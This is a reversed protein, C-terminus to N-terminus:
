ICKCQCMYICANFIYDDYSQTRTESAHWAYQGKWWRRVQQLSEETIVAAAAEELHWGFLIDPESNQVM